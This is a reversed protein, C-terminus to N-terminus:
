KPLPVLHNWPKRGGNNPALSKHQQSVSDLTTHTTPWSWVAGTLKFVPPLCSPLWDAQLSAVGSDFVSFVLFQCSPQQCLELNSHVLFPDPPMSYIQGMLMWWRSYIHSQTRARKVKYKQYRNNPKIWGASATERGLKERTEKRKVM